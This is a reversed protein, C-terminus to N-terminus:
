SLEQRWCCCSCCMGRPEGNQASIHIRKTGFRYIGRTLRAFNPPLFELGDALRHRIASALLEDIEDNQEQDSTVGGRERPM